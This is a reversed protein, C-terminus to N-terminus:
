GLARKFSPSSQSSQWNAHLDHFQKGNFSLVPVTKHGAKVYAHFRHWGDTLVEDENGRICPWRAEEGYDPIGGMSLYWQHYQNFDAFGESAIDKSQMIRAAIEELPVISLSAELSGFVSLMDEKEPMDITEDMLAKVAFLCVEPLYKIEVM